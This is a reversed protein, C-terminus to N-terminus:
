SRLVRLTWCLRVWLSLNLSPYLNLRRVVKTASASRTEPPLIVVRRFLQRLILSRQLDYSCIRQKAQAQSRIQNFQSVAIAQPPTTKHTTAQSPIRDSKNQPAITSNQKCGRDGKLSTDATSKRDGQSTSSM